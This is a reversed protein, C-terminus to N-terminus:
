PAALETEGAPGTLGDADVGSVRVTYARDELALPFDVHGDAPPPEFLKTTPAHRDGAGDLSVLVARLPPTGALVPFTFSVTARDGARTAAVSPTSPRVLHAGAFAALDKAEVADEHFTLPDRWQAHQRPGVPSDDGWEIGDIDAPRTSGWRGPWAVWSPDTDTILNVRPRVLPGGADNYDWGVLPVETAHNGRRLYSAHSGRASYVVPAGDRTEVEAWACREGRKHQAYTVVDPEDGAGIRLQVMEWDGEHRGNGLLAKDNYYYFFWYQLWLAGDRDTVAHGYVQDAMGPLLHMAHAEAVYEEGVVDIYDTSEVATHPADPYHGGHLFALDLVAKGPGAGAAALEHGGHVLVNGHPNAATKCDTMTAPSDASYTELSDYRVWPSYRALLGAVDAPVEEGARSAEAEGAESM